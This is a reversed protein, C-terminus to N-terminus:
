AAGMSPLAAVPRKMEPLASAISVFRFESLLVEVRALATDLGRYHRIQNFASVPLRPQAADIEWPHIYFTGHEGRRAAERFARRILGLPLLRLYGGGAAPIPLRFFSTTALPFEALTGGKRDM